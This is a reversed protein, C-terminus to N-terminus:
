VDNYTWSLGTGDQILADVRDDVRENTFYRNTSGESLDDTTKLAFATDFRTQTWYLNSSGETLDDTDFPTLTVNGTLTNSADNYTWALGTGNQILAATRDDVREETFYLNGSEPVVSTNLTALTQDGRIYQASTGLPLPNQKANFTAWDTSSLLGRNLSSATPFNFTHISGSSVINFDTGSTGETFTQETATLGNLSTIYGGSTTTLCDPCSIVGSTSNYSIPSSASLAARARANTFYLNTSGEDLDDTDKAGFATDFRGQTWYVNTLGEALDDTTFAALSVNGTLTNGADNYIWSIGTGDQILSDVRDDM